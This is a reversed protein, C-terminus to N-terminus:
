QERYQTATLTHGHTENGSNDDRESSSTPQGLSLMQTKETGLIYPLVSQHKINKNHFDVTIQQLTTKFLKAKPSGHKM